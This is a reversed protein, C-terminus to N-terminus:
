GRPTRHQESFQRLADAVVQLKLEVYTPEALPDGDVILGSLSYNADYAADRVCMIRYNDSALRQRAPEPLAQPTLTRGNAALAAVKVATDWVIEENEYICELLIALRNDPVKAARGHQIGRKLMSLEDTAEILTDRIPWAPLAHLLRRLTKIDDARAKSRLEKGFRAPDRVVRNPKTARSESIWGVLIVIALLCFAGVALEMNLERALSKDVAALLVVSTSELIGSATHRTLSM